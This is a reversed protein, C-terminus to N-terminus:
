GMDYRLASGTSLYDALHITADSTIETAEFWGFRESEHANVSLNIHDNGLISWGSYLGQSSGQPYPHGSDLLAHGFEHVTIEFSSHFNRWQTTIGRINQVNLSDNLDFSTGLGALGHFSKGTNPNDSTKFWSTGPPTRWIMSIM